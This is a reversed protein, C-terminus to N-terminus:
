DLLSMEDEVEGVHDRIMLLATGALIRLDRDNCLKQCRDFLLLQDELAERQLTLFREGVASTQRLEGLSERHKPLMGEPVTWGKEAALRSLDVHIQNQDDILEQAVSEIGRTPESRLVYYSSEIAFQTASSAETVFAQDDFGAVPVIDVEETEVTPTTPKEPVLDPACGFA